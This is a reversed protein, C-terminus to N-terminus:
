LKDFISEATEMMRGIKGTATNYEFYGISFKGKAKQPNVKLLGGETRSLIVVIPVDKSLSGSDRIDNLSPEIDKRANWGGKQDEKKIHYVIIIKVDYSNAVTRLDHVMKTIEANLNSTNSLAFGFGDIIAMEINFLRKAKVITEILEKGSPFAFYLPLDKVDEIIEEWQQKSRSDLEDEDLNCRVQLFRQGTGDIGDEFPLVLVPRNQSVMEDAINLCYTTKGVNTDAAVTIMANKKLRLDPIFRSKLIDKPNQERMENIVEGLGKFNRKYFPRANKALSVFEDKTHSLFFSSADENETGFMVEFCKSTDIRNALLESKERGEDNNKFVLYVKKIDDIYEIWQGFIEGRSVAAISNTSGSQWISMLSYEDDAIIISGKTTAYKLGDENYIWQETNKEVEDKKRKDLHKYKIGILEGRKFTPITIANRKADYGLKFHAITEVSLGREEQLYKLALSDVENLAEIYSNLTEISPRFYGGGVQERISKIEDM